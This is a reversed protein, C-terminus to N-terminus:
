WQGAGEKESAESYKRTLFMGLFILVLMILAMFSGGSWDSQDFATAIANGIVTVQRESMVDTVVYSSMTPMFVMMCASILGPRSQPLVNRIFVHFKNCGLDEAAEMQSRDLKLFTTNLPLITFPLYDAVLGIVGSLYPLEGTSKGFWGLIVNLLDRLAGTRLVFNIWMPIVFLMVLVSSHNLEPDALIWAVPFGIVLCILTTLTALLLSVFLVNLKTPSTFFSIVAEWTFNGSADTFAYYVIFLMPILVFLVLFLTFPICLGKRFAKYRM